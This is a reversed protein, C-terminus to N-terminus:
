NMTIYCQKTHGHVTINFMFYSAVSPRTFSGMNVRGAVPSPGASTPVSVDFNSMTIQNDSVSYGDDWGNQWAAEANIAIDTTYRLAWSEGDSALSNVNITALVSKPLGTIATPTGTSNLGLVLDNGSTFGITYPTIGTAGISLPFRHSSWSPSLSTAKNFTIIDGNFKTITLTAGDNSKSIEKVMGQVVTPTMSMTSGSTRFEVAGDSTVIYNGDATVNGSSADLKIKQDGIYMSKKVMINNNTVGFADNIMTNGEIQVNDAGIAVTSTDDNNIKGIIYARSTRGNVYTTFSSSTLNLGAEMQDYSSKVYASLSSSTLFLGSTMQDYKSNVYLAASSATLKLGSSMQDYKSNVYLAASSATLQLGATMQDYKSNVYLAASSATLDLGASMQDYKSNVYASLSSATILLGARMQAYSDEVFYHLYKDNRLGAGGGIGGGGGVYKQQSVKSVADRQQNGTSSVSVQQGRRWTMSTSQVPSQYSNGERSITVIDGAEISWDAFTDAELPHYQPASNLRNYIEALSANTITHDAM